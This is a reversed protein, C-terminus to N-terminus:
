SLQMETCRLPLTFTCSYRLKQVCDVILECGSFFDAQHQHQGTKFEVTSKSTALSKFPKLAQLM